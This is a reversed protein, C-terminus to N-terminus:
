RPSVGGDMPRPFCDFCTTPLLTDLLVVGLTYPRLLLLSFSSLLPSACPPLPLPPSGGRGQEAISHITHTMREVNECLFASVGLTSAM